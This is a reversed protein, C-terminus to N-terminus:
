LQIYSYIEFIVLSVILAIIKELTSITWELTNYNKGLM